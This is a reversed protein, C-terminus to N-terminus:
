ICLRCMKNVLYEIMNYIVYSESKDNYKIKASRKGFSANHLSKKLIEMCEEDNTHFTFHNKTVSFAFFLTGVRYTPMRFWLVPKIDPHNTKMYETFEYIWERKIGEFQNVYILILDLIHEEGSSM